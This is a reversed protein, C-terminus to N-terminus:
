PQQLSQILSVYLKEPSKSLTTYYQEVFYWGVEDKPIDGNGGNGVNNMSSVGNYDTTSASISNNATHNVVNQDINYNQMQGPAFSGNSLGHDSAM